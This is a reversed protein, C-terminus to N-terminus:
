TSLSLSYLAPHDCIAFSNLQDLHNGAFLPPKMFPKELPTAIIKAVSIPSLVKKMAAIKLMRCCRAATKKPATRLKYTMVTKDLMIPNINGLSTGTFYVCMKPPIKNKYKPTLNNSSELPISLLWTLSSNSSTSSSNSCGFFSSPSSSACATTELVEMRFPNECIAICDNVRVNKASHPSRDCIAVIANLAAFFGYPTVSPPHMPWVIQVPIATRPPRMSAALIESFVTLMNPPTM